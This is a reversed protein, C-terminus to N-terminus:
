ASQHPGHLVSVGISSSATVFDGGRVFASPVTAPGETTRTLTFTSLCAPMASSNFILLRGVTIVMRPPSKTSETAPVIDLASTSASTAAAAALALASGGEGM